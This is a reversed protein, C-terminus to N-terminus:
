TSSGDAPKTSDISSNPFEGAPSVARKRSRPKKKKKQCADEKLLIGGDWWSPFIDEPQAPPAVCEDHSISLGPGHKIPQHCRYCYPKHLLRLAESKTMGDRLGALFKGSEVDALADCFSAGNLCIPCLVRATAITDADMKQRQETTAADATEAMPFLLRGAYPRYGRGLVPKYAM